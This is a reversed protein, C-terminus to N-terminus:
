WKRMWWSICNRECRKSGQKGRLLAMLKGELRNAWLQSSGQLATHQTRLGTWNLGAWETETLRDARAKETVRTWNRTWIEAGDGGDQGPRTQHSVAQKEGTILHVAQRDRVSLGARALGSGRERYPFIDAQNSSIDNIEGGKSHRYGPSIISTQSCKYREPHGALYYGWVEGRSATKKM